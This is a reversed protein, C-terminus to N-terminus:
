KTEKANFTPLSNQSAYQVTVSGGITMHPSIRLDLQPAKGEGTLCPWYWHQAYVKNLAKDTDADKFPSDFERTKATGSADDSADSDTSDNPRMFRCGTDRDTTDLARRGATVHSRDTLDFSFVGDIIGVGNADMVDIESPGGVFDQISYGGYDEDGNGGFAWWCGDPLTVVVQASSVTMNITGTPCTSDGMTGDNLKVKHSGNTKGYQSLDIHLVDSDYDNGVVSIGERYRKMQAASSGMVKTGELAVTRYTDNQRFGYWCISYTGTCLVMIVAMAAALWTLPHLGGTRRGMCGLIIIIVGMLLCFGGAVLTTMQLKDAVANQSMGSGYSTCYWCLGAATLLALGLTLLVLFPGAPKRRGYRPQPEIPAAPATFTPPVNATAFAAPGNMPQQSVHARPPVAGGTGNAPNQRYPPNRPPMGQQPPVGRQYWPSVPKPGDTTAVFPPNRPPVPGAAGQAGPVYPNQPVPGYQAQRQWTPAYTQRNVMLWLALAAVAFAVWGAGPLCIAIAMCVFVGVCGWDWRGAILEECLIRDDTEDPLLFWAMGYFAAGCGFFLSTLIVLARVLAVNWGLRRALGDCVGGVWRDHGRKLQSNRIWAFFRNSPSPQPRGAPQRPTNWQSNRPDHNANSM